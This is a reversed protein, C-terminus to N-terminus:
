LLLAVVRRSGLRRRISEEAARAAIGRFFDKWFEDRVEREARDLKEPAEGLARTAESAGVWLEERLEAALALVEARPPAWSDSPLQGRPESGEPAEERRARGPSLLPCIPNMVSEAARVPEANLEDLEVRLQEYSKGRDVSTGEVDPPGEAHAVPTELM